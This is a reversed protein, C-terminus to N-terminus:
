LVVKRSIWGFAQLTWQHKEVKATRFTLMGQGTHDEFDLEAGCEWCGYRPTSHPHPPDCCLEGARSCSLVHGFIAFARQMNGCKRKQATGRKPARGWLHWHQSLKWSWGKSRMEVVGGQTGSNWRGVSCIVCAQLYLALSIRVRVMHTEKREPVM